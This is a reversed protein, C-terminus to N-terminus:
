IVSKVSRKRKDENTNRAKYIQNTQRHFYNDLMKRRKFVEFRRNARLYGHMYREDKRNNRSNRKARRIESFAKQEKSM